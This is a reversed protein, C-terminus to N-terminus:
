PTAGGVERSLWSIFQATDTKEFVADAGLALCHARIGPSAYGSFVVVKAGPGGTRRAHAVVGMGSGEALVLDVIALDWAGPHEDLWLKAEAETTSGDVIEISGITHFLDALLMQMSRLDEVVFVRWAM